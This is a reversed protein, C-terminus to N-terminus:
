WWRFHSPGDAPNFVTQEATMQKVHGDVMLFNARKGYRFALTAGWSPVNDSSSVWETNSPEIPGFHIIGAPTPVRLLNNEWRNNTIQPNLGYSRGNGQYPIGPANFVSNPEVVAGMFETVNMHKYRGMYEKLYYQWVYTKQGNMKKYIDFFPVMQGEHDHAYLQAATGIQRLNSADKTSLAKLRMKSAFPVVMALLLVIIAVVVLTEILTFANKNKKM